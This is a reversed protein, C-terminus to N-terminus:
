SIKSNLRKRNRSRELPCLVGRSPPPPPLQTPSKPCPEVSPRKEGEELRPPSSSCESKVQKRSWGRMSQYLMGRPMPEPAPSPVPTTSNTFTEVNDKKGEDIRSSSFSGSGALWHNRAREFPCLVKRPTVPLQVASKSPKVSSKNSHDDHIPSVTRTRPSPTAISM